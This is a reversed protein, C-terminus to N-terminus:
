YTKLLRAPSGAIVSRPGFNQSVVSNAGVVCGEGLIVGPLIVTGYGLFSGAGIIVEHDAELV